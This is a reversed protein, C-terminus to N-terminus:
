FIYDMAEYLNSFRFTFGEDLVNRPEIYNGRMLTDARLKGWWLYLLAKPAAHSHNQGIFSGALGAFEYQQNMAPATLNYIDHKGGEHEILFTVIRTWDQHHIWPFPQEGSGYIGSFGSKIPKTIQHFVHGGIGLVNSTRLVIVRDFIDDLSRGAAEIDVFMKAYYDKGAPGDEDYIHTPRTTGIGYYASSSAVILLRPRETPCTGEIWKRLHQLPRTRTEVIEERFSQSWRKVSVPIGALHIVFAIPENIESFHAIYKVNRSDYHAEPHRTMVICRYGNHSLHTVLNNGLFGTGGMVLVTETM